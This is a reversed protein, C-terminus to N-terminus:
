QKSSIKVKVGNSDLAMDMVQGSIHEPLKLVDPVRYWAGAKVLIGKEELEALDDGAGYKELVPKNVPKLRNHQPM